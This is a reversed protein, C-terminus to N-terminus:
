TVKEVLERLKAEAVALARGQSSDFAPRASPRAARGRSGFELAPAYFRPQQNLPLGPVPDITVLGTAGKKGARSKAKISARYNGDLFPARARWTEAIVEGGALTAEKLLEDRLGKEMNQLARALEPGGELYAKFRGGRGGTTVAM